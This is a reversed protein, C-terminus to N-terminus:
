FLVKEFCLFILKIKWVILINLSMECNFLIVIYYYMVMREKNEWILRGFMLVVKEKYGNEYFCCGFLNFVVYRYFVGSFVMEEFEKFVLCLGINDGVFCKCKFKMYCVYVLLDFM